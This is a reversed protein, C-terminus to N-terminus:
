SARLSHLVDANLIDVTRILCRHRVRSRRVPVTVDTDTERCACVNNLSRM